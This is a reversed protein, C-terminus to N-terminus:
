KKKRISISIELDDDSFIQKNSKQAKYQAQPESVMSYHVFMDGKGILLWEPNIQPYASYLNSLLESSVGGGNEIQSIAGATVKLKEAFDGQSVGLEKRLKKVRDSINM